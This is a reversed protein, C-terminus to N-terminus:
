KRQPPPMIMITYEYKEWEAPYYFGDAVPTSDTILKAGTPVYNPMCNVEFQAKM